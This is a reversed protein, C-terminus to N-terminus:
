FRRQLYSKEEYTKNTKPNYIFHPENLKKKFQKIRQKIEKAKLCKPLEIWLGPIIEHLESDPKLM